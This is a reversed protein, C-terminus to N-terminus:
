AQASHIADNFKVKPVELAPGLWNVDDVVQSEHRSALMPTSGPPAHCCPREMHNHGGAGAVEGVFTMAPVHHAVLTKM